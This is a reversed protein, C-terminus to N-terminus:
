EHCLNIFIQGYFIVMQAYFLYRNNTAIYWKIWIHTCHVYLIHATNLEITAWEIKVQVSSENWNRKAIAVGSFLSAHTNTRTVSYYLWGLRHSSSFVDIQIYPFRTVFLVFTHFIQINRTNIMFSFTDRETYHSIVYSYHWKCECFM